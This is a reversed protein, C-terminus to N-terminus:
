KSYEDTWSQVSDLNAGAIALVLEQHLSGVTSGRTSIGHRLAIRRQSPTPAKDRLRPPVASRRDPLMLLAEAETAYSGAWAGGKLSDVPAEGVWWRHLGQEPGVLFRMHASGIPTLRIGGPTRLWPEDILAVDRHGVVTASVGDDVPGAGLDDDVIEDDDDRHKGRPLETESLDIVGNLRHRFLVGTPDLIIADSKGPYPRLIRGVMQVFLGEHTTPRAIVAASCWPADWGESLRTCSVLVQTQGSEHRKHRLRSEETSTVGYLGEASIGAATLGERFFEATEVTPAFIVGSRDAAHELYATVIADRTADKNLKQGLDGADYDGHSKKIMDLDIDTMIYRGVPRVLFGQDIAWSVPLEFSIKQWVEGLSRKDARTWTASFGATRVTGTEDLCGLGRLVTLWQDSVSRHAEDCIVLGFRGLQALRRPRAATQVSAVVIRAAAGNRAAKVIGLSITKDVRMLKDVTQRVLEDRHVLILVRHGRAVSRHALHSMIVTKGTGTAASVGLCRLGAKWDADLADLAASQYPRLTITM